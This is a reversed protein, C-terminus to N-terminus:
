KPVPFAIEVVGTGTFCFHFYCSKYQSEKISKIAIFTYNHIVKHFPFTKSLNSLDGRSPLPSRGKSKCNCCLM